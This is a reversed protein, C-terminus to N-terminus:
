SAYANGGDFSAVGSIWEIPLTSIYWDLSNYMAGSITATTEFTYSDIGNSFSSITAGSTTAVRLYTPLNKIILCYLTIVHQPLTEGAKVARGVRNLTWNDILMDAIPALNEYEDESIGASSWSKTFTEYNVYM